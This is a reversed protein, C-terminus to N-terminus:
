PRAEGDAADAAHRDTGEPLRAAPLDSWRRRSALHDFAVRHRPDRRRLLHGLALASRFAVSAVRGHTTEYERVRNVSMLAVLEPSQGSGGGVHTGVASPVFRVRFGRERARRAYDTEEAYLFFRESDWDGVAADCAGSVVLVAGGAWAVDHGHDYDSPRRYVESCWEPRNPWHDGLVADGLVRPITPERRLHHFVEGDAERLVPTVIGVTPDDLADVLERLCGPALVSDPNVIALADFPGAHRRAVNIGGSFGLNGGSEVVTVGPRGQAAAVTGDASDNDVIVVRPTLGTAAGPVSDLLGPLDEASNYTVIVVVLDLLRTEVPGDEAAPGSTASRTAHSRESM